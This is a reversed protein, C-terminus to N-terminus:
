EDELIIVENPYFTESILPNLSVIYLDNGKVTKQVEAIRGVMNKYKSHSATILVEKGKM